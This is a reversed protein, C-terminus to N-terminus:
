FKGQEQVAVAIAEIEDRILVLKALRAQHEDIATALARADDSQVYYDRGHPATKRLAEIADGLASYAARYGDLLEKKSTGNLHITPVKM